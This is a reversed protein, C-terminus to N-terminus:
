SFVKRPGIKYDGGFCILGSFTKYSFVTSFDYQPDTYNVTESMNWDQYGLGGVVYLGLKSAYGERKFNYTTTLFGNIVHGGTFNATYGLSEFGPENSGSNSYALM